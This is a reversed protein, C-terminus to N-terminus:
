AGERYQVMIEYECTPCGWIEKRVTNRSTGSSSIYEMKKRCKNCILMVKDMKEGGIKEFNLFFILNIFIIHMLKSRRKTCVRNGTSIDYMSGLGTKSNWHFHLPPPPNHTFLLILNKKKLSFFTNGWPPIAMNFITM